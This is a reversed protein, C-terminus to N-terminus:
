AEAAEERKQMDQVVLWMVAILVLAGVGQTMTLRDGLFLYGIILASLPWILELITSRSAPIKKLGFYYIALAVLGTSFTIAAIMQWQPWTIILLQGSSGLAVAMLLAFLPTLGFRVATVSMFSADRLAYKSFATSIGWSAAAGLALLAAMVTGSAASTVTLNPFSVFYAAGIAVAALSLFRRTLREKLLIGAAAIAFLPQLQQLVVVVSFDIYFIQGLAATYMVTGAAGSLFAVLAIAAWQKRTIKRFERLTIIIIPLLVIFGFVHEWFVVVTPPLTYLSQRLLGDLSWLLSAVIVAIAGALTNSM